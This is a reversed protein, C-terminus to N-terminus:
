EGDDEMQYVSKDKERAILEEVEEDRKNFLSTVSAALAGVGAAGIAWAADSNTTVGGAIALLSLVSLSMVLITPPPAQAAKIIGRVMIVTTVLILIVGITWAALLYTSNESTIQIDQSPISTTAFTETM